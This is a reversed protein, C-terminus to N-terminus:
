SNIIFNVFNEYNINGETDEHGKLLQAAEDETLKEGLTTLLHHLEVSRILGTGEMDFHRLGEVLDDSTDTSKKSSIAQLFPLFVQFTIRDHEEYEVVLKTIDAQTPNKGLARILDGIQRIAIKGDGKEDFLDFTEQFEAVEHETFQSTKLYLSECKLM